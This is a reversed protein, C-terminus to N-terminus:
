QDINKAAEETETKAKFPGETNIKGVLTCTHADFDVEYTAYDFSQIEMMQPCINYNYQGRVKVTKKESGIIPVIFEKKGSIEYVSDEFSHTWEYSPDDIDADFRFPGSLGDPVPITLAMLEGEYGNPDSYLSLDENGGSVYMKMIGGKSVLYGEPAFVCDPLYYPATSYIITGKDENSFVYEISHGLGAEELLAIAQDETMGALDPIRVDEVPHTEIPSEKNVSFGNVPYIEGDRMKRAFVVLRYGDANEDDINTSLTLYEDDATFDIDRMITCNDKIGNKWSDFTYKDNFSSYKSYDFCSDSDTDIIAAGIIAYQQLGEDWATAFKIVPSKNLIEGTGDNYDILHTFMSGLDNRSKGYLILNDPRSDRTVPVTHDAFINGAEYDDGSWDHDLFFENDDGQTVPCNVYQVGDANTLGPIRIYGVVPSGDYAYGQIWDAADTDEDMISVIDDLKDTWSGANSYVASRPEDGILGYTKLELINAEYWVRVKYEKNEGCFTLRLDCETDPLDEEDSLLTGNKRIDDILETFSTYVEEIYGTAVRKGDKKEYTTGEDCETASKLDLLLTPDNHDVGYKVGNVKIILFLDQDTGASYDSGRVPYREDCLEIIQEENEVYYAITREVPLDPGNLVPCQMVKKVLANVAPVKDTSDTFERGNDYYTVLNDKSAQYGGGGFNTDITVGSSASSDLDATKESTQRIKPIKENMNVAAIGVVIVACAAASIVAVPFRKKIKATGNTNYANMKIHERQEETNDATTMEIGFTKRGAELKAAREMVRNKLESSPELIKRISSINEKM